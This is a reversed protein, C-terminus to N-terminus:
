KKAKSKLKSELAKIEKEQNNITELLSNLEENEITTPYQAEVRGIFDSLVNMYNMFADYPSEYPSEHAVKGNTFHKTCMYYFHDSAQLCLWDHKLLRDSCLHVRESLEYLKNLSENQLDNGRWASMDKEEDAWSMPYPVSLQPATIKKSLTESPLSFTIDKELAFIPLAKFFEFIGSEKSNFKGLTEYGVFVNFVDEQEPAAAIWNMFKDATLPYEEWQWNSFRYNLDDSLKGNRVMLKLKGSQYLMNPTKWGLIHKAGEVIMSKYGMKAVQYAIEDSYIMETNFFVSPTKGFLEKIKESQLKVQNQFENENYVAALSNAYPMALFEVCGTKALERFSDIVEPAYQEFQELALGSIAFSVKFKKNSNQIMELMTKNAELYCTESLYQTNSENAFDDYYYHDNGIEFFRYRKLRYPQHIKFCFCLTKM